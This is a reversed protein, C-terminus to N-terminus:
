KTKDDPMADIAKKWAKLDTGHNAGTLRVLAKFMIKVPYDTNKRLLLDNISNLALLMLQKRSIYHKKSLCLSESARALINSANNKNELQRLVFNYVIKYKVFDNFTLILEYIMEGKFKNKNRIIETIIEPCKKTNDKGNTLLLYFDLARSRSEPSKNVDFIINHLKSEANNLVNIFEQNRCKYQFTFIESVAITKEDFPSSDSLSITLFYEAASFDKEHTKWWKELTQNKILPICLLKLYKRVAESIKNNKNYKLPFFILLFDL